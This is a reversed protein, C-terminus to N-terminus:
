KHLCSMTPPIYLWDTAHENNIWSIRKCTWQMFGQLLASNFRIHIIVWISIFPLIKHASTFSCSWQPYDQVTFALILTLHRRGVMGRCLIHNAVCSKGLRCLSCTSATAQSIECIIDASFWSNFSYCVFLLNTTIILVIIISYECNETPVWACVSAPSHGVLGSYWVCCPIYSLKLCLVQMTNGSDWCCFFVSICIFNSVVCCWYPGLVCIM